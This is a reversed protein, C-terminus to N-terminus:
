PISTIEHTNNLFGPFLNRNDVATDNNSDDSTEKKSYTEKLNVNSSGREDRNILKESYSKNFNLVKEKISFNERKNKIKEIGLCCDLNNNVNKNPLTTRKPINSKVEEQETYPQDLKFRSICCGM